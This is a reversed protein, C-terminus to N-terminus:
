IIMIQTEILAFKIIISKSHNNEHEKLLALLENPNTKLVTFVNILEKNIDNLITKNFM